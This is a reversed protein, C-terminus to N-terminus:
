QKAILVPRRRQLTLKIPQKTSRRLLVPLIQVDMSGRCHQLTRRGGKCFGKRNCPQARDWNWDDAVASLPDNEHYEVEFKAPGNPMPPVKQVSINDMEDIEEQNLYTRNGKQILIGERSFIFLYMMNISFKQTGLVVIVLYTYQTM